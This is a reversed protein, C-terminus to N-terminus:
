FAMESQQPNALQRSKLAGKYEAFPAYRWVRRNAWRALPFKRCTRFGSDSTEGYTPHEWTDVGFLLVSPFRQHLYRLTEGWFVGIEILSNGDHPAHGLHSTIIDGVIIARRPRRHFTKVRKPKIM